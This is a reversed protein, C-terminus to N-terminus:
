FIKKGSTLTLGKKYLQRRWKQWNLAYVINDTSVSYIQGRFLKLLLIFALSVTTSVTYCFTGVCKSADNEVAIIL